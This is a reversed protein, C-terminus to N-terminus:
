LAFEWTEISAKYTRKIKKERANGTLIKKIYSRIDNRM